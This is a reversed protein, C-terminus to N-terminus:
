GKRTRKRPAEGETRGVPKFLTTLDAGTSLADGDKSKKFGNLYFKVGDRNNNSWCSITVAAWGYVGRYIAKRTAFIIEKGDEDFVQVGGPGDEGHENFKTNAKIYLKGEYFDGKKGRRALEAAKDDGIQIPDAIHSALVEYGDDGVVTAGDGWKEKAAANVLDYVEDLADTEFTLDVSYM